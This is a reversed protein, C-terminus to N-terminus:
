GGRIRPGAESGRDGAESGRNGAESGRYGAEIEEIEKARPLENDCSATVWPTCIALWEQKV